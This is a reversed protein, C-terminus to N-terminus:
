KVNIKVTFYGTTAANFVSEYISLFITGDGKAKGNYKSGAKIMEGYEGVRYVLNGYNPYTSQYDSTETDTGTTGDPTYKNGSLSELTIEGSATISIKQNNRVKIGTNLWGGNNNGSINKSALVKFSKDGASEDFYTVEVERIKEKPVTLEGYDTKLAISKLAFTGGMSYQYDINVVDKDSYDDEVGYTSKMDSVAAEPTYDTYEAPKYDDTSIYDSILPICNVSMATLADYATKRKEEDSDDLQKILKIVASKSSEDPIIGFKLSSVNKVPIELKGYDTILDVTTISTSTGTVINGDRLILKLEVKGKQAHLSLGAILLALLIFMKKM